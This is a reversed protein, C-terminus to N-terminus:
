RYYRTRLLENLSLWVTIKGNNVTFNESDPKNQKQIQKIHTPHFKVRVRTLHDDTVISRFLARVDQGEGKGVTSNSFM